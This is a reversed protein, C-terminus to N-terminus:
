ACQCISGSLTTLKPCDQMKDTMPMSNTAVVRDLHSNNIRGIAPGSLVAHTASASISKAGKEMLAEVTHILTGATDIIDDVVFVNKTAVDGIINMVQTQNAAVRRKDIIALGAGLRKAYARAREVGGADPSVVIADQGVVGNSKLYDIMVPM